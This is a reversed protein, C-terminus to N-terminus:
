SSLSEVGSHAGVRGAENVAFQKRIWGTPRERNLPQIPFASRAFLQALYNAFHCGVFKAEGLKLGAYGANRDTITM